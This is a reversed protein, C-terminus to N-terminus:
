YGDGMAADNDWKAKQTKCPKWWLGLASELHQGAGNLTSQLREPASLSRRYDEVARAHFVV